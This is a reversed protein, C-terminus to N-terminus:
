LKTDYGYKSALIQVAELKQTSDRFLAGTEMKRKTLRKIVNRVAEEPSWGFGQKHMKQYGTRTEYGTKVSGDLLIYKEELVAESEYLKARDREIHVYYITQKKRQM